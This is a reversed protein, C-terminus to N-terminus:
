SVRARPLALESQGRAGWMPDKLARGASVGLDASTLLGICFGMLRM